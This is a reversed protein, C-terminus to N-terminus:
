KQVAVDSFPLAATFHSNLLLKTPKKLCRKFCRELNLNVWNKSSNSEIEKYLMKLVVYV